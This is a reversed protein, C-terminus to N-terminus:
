IKDTGYRKKLYTSLPIRPKKIAKKAECSDTLDLLKESVQKNNSKFYKKM